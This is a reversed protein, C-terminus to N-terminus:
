IGYRSLDIITLNESELGTKTVEAMDRGFNMYFERKDAEDIVAGSRVLHMITMKGQDYREEFVPAKVGSCVSRVYSVYRGAYYITDLLIHHLYGGVKGAGKIVEYVFDSEHMSSMEEPRAATAEMPVGGKRILNTNM